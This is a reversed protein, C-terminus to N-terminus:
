YAVDDIILAHVGKGRIENPVQPSVTNAVIDDLLQQALGRIHSSSTGDIISRLIKVTVGFTMKKTVALSPNGWCQRVLWYKAAQEQLTM